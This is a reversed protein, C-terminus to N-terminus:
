RSEKYEIPIKNSYYKGSIIKYGEKKIKEYQQTDLQKKIFNGDIDLFLQINIHTNSHAILAFYSEVLDNEFRPFECELSFEIKEHSKLYILNQLLYHKYIIEEKSLKTGKHNKKYNSIIRKQEKLSQLRVKYVSDYKSELFERYWDSSRIHIATINEGLDSSTYKGLSDLLTLKIGLDKNAVAEELENKDSVRLYGRFGTTDLPIIINENTNNKIEISYKIKQENYLIANDGSSLNEIKFNISVEQGKIQSFTVSLLLIITYRM